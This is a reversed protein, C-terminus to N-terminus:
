DTTASKTASRKQPRRRALTPATACIAAILDNPSSAKNFCAVAGAQLMAGAWEDEPFISMGIARVDPFEAVIQRTAEIGSLVPLNIDMVVVDPLLSRAMEVAMQGNSAEGVVELWSLRGLTYALEQRVITHDDVLLVRIKQGRRGAM